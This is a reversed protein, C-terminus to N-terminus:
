RALRRFGSGCTRGSTSRTRPSSAWSTPSCGPRYGLLDPKPRVLDSIPIRENWEIRQKEPRASTTQEHEADGAPERCLTGGARSHLARNRHRTASRDLM